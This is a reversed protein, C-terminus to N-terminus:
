FTLFIKPTKKTKVLPPLGVTMYNTKLLDGKSIKSNLIFSFRM